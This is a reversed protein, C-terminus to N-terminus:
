LGALIGKSKEEFVKEGTVDAFAGLASLTAFEESGDDGFKLTVNDATVGKVTVSNEGDTYTLSVADWNASSGSAFWLTVTGDPLQEVTDVGWNDCFAFIDNGGGGHMLDSGVGGALVDNGSAGVLRDNGADGFLFNDGKNAWITDNGDGGRVTLGDGIYEFRQSTLDVVDNGAGARIEDIRAIRSQQEAVTGPLATYIDDVFLADGNADDTMLLVNADTSGEFIDALKNKGSLSVSENTGAWDGISGVHKAAYNAGWTGAANAFFVDANGDADSSVLQPTVAVTDAAINEGTVWEDSESARVRWQYTGQPLCFSSVGNSETHLRVLHEFNDTSYEVVYGTAGTVADWALGSQTGTLNEPAVGSIRVSKVESWGSLNGVNDVAQAKFYYTTGPTGNIALEAYTSYGYTMFNEGNTSYMINYGAIGSDADEGALTLTITSNAAAVTFGTVAPDVSDITNLTTPTDIPDNFDFYIKATNTLETGHALDQKANVTYNIYGEGAGIADNVPLMGNVLDQLMFGTEPDIAMFEAVLQTTGTEEDTVLNIAVTATVTYDYIHLTVTDNFCDRGDGVTFFNGAICFDRLEFTDLDFKSGDLTDFVRVWQAPATAFEPDNEFEVKYSLKSGAAIYGAEGVGETVTKDNPDASGSIPTKGGIPKGYQNEGGGNGGDDNGSVTIRKESRIDKSNWGEVVLTISQGLRLMDQYKQPLKISGSLKHENVKPYLGTLKEYPSAIYISGQEWYDDGDLLSYTITKGDCSLTLESPIDVPLPVSVTTTILFAGQGNGIQVWSGTQSYDGDNDLVRLGYTVTTGEKQWVDDFVEGTSEGIASWTNDENQRYWFYKTISGVIDQIGGNDQSGEASLVVKGYKGGSKTITTESKLPQSSITNSINATPAQNVTFKYRDFNGDTSKRYGVNTWTHTAYNGKTYFYKEKQQKIFSDGSLGLLYEKLREPNSFNNVKYVSDYNLVYSVWGACDRGETGPTITWLDWDYNPLNLSRGYHYIMIARKFSLELEDTAYISIVSAGYQKNYKELQSVTKQDNKYDPHSSLVSGNSNIAAHSWHGRSIWIDTANGSIDVVCPSNNGCYAYLNEGGDIGIPDPSLWRGTESDYNRARVFYTGSDNKMLGYGGVFTFDNAIGETSNLVNGWPDYSYTSVATGAAGSVSVTTGLADGNYYYTNGDADKFGALLDCQYYTRNWVGNVYEALVNGYQDVTWTTTVGNTTSSVRNGMADYGYEWTQGTSKLTESAVRNDATWTYTRKEDELLNGNADYVYTFGDASVIQNLSNYVYTTTVGNETSSLRNGMADYTYALEQTVTETKDTFVAGVLQDRVDYTYTWTGERTAMATRLGARDYTYRNFSELVGAATYNEIATVEGYEDYAYTTYAGNGKAAKVLNGAEDYDYDIVLNGAEDTLRDYLDDDTYTYNLAHGLEDAYGALLGDVTYTYNVARGDAFTMSTLNEGADYTFAIDNMQSVYGDANYTYSITKGDSYTVSTLYGEANVTYEATQGARGQWRTLNGDADYTYSESTGDAYLTTVLASDDNYTYVISNGNADTFKTLAGNEDYEYLSTGGAPDTISAYNGNADYTYSTTKGNVTVSSQRGAEDYTYAYVNGREDTYGLLQEGDESYTYSATKGGSTISAVNGHADYTYSTVSGDAATVSTMNGDADYVYKSGDPATETAKNGAADYTYSTTGDADTLSLLRGDADYLYSTTEGNQTSAYFVRNGAADYGVTYSDTTTDFQPLVNGEMDKKFYKVGDIVFYESPDDVDILYGGDDTVTYTTTVGDKLYKYSVLSGEADYASLYYESVEEDKDLANGEADRKYYTIGDIVYHDPVTKYTANFTLAGFDTNGSGRVGFREGFFTLTDGTTGGDSTTGSVFGGNANYRYSYVIGSVNDVARAVNGDAGFFLTMSDGNSSTLTVEGGDGYALEISGSSKTLKTVRGSADYAFSRTSGDASVAKTLAHEHTDYYEYSAIVGSLSDTVEVLDGDEYTYSVTRGSKDTISTVFGTASDRSFALYEGSSTNTLRVIRGDADYSCSVRENDLATVSLLKGAKDFQKVTGSALTLRYGISNKVLKSGDEVANQFGNSYNPQYLAKSGGEIYTVDGNASIELKVDWDCCWGYGFSGATDRSAIDGSYSRRIAMDLSNGEKLIDRTSVLEGFPQLAGTKQMVEFCLLDSTNQVSVDGISNLYKLNSIVMDYYGGWTNGFDESFAVGLAQAASASLGSKGFVNAWNLRTTDDSSLTAVNWNIHSNGFDWDDSRWGLYTIPVTVSEGPLLEGVNEGSVFFSLSDSYGNPTTSVWFATSVSSSDLTLEAGLTEPKDEHWQTPTFFILPSDIAATGTNAINLYLTSVAARGVTAPPNFTYELEGTGTGAITVTASAFVTDTDSLKLRYEGESLTGAVITASLRTGSDRTVSLSYERGTGDVLAAATNETFRVGTITLTIDQTNDQTSQTFKEIELPAVDATVTYDLAGPVSKAYVMVYIDRAVATDSLTLSGDTVRQLKADYKERTPSFGYGIYLEMNAADALTDLAVTMSEGAAQTFKYVAFDGSANVHGDAAIGASLTPIAVSVAVAKLNQAAAAGVIGSDEDNNIDSRVLLYYNGEKVGSVAFQAQASLTEGALLGDAYTYTALLKDSVDWKRDTSLYVGDTWSGLLATGSENATNWAILTKAGPTLTPSVEVDGITLDIETLNVFGTYSDGSEGNVDNGNQNLKNGSYDTINESIRVSYNGTATQATVSFEAISDTVMRVSAPAIGTGDPAILRVNELLSSPDVSKNFYVQFATLTGAVDGAPVTKLVMPGSVSANFRIQDGVAADLESFRLSSLKNGDSDTISSSFVLTYIGEATLDNLTVVIRNGNVQVDKVAHLKGANDRLMVSDASVTAANVIGTFTAEITKGGSRLHNKVLDTSEIAFVVTSPNVTLVDGIIVKDKDAGLMARIADIDATGWYNGSLDVDVADGFVFKAHSFDNGSIGCNRSWRSLDLTFDGSLGSITAASGVVITGAIVADKVEGYVVGNVVKELTLAGDDANVIGAFVAGREIVVNRLETTAAAELYGGSAIRIDSASAGDAVYLYGGSALTAGSLLAGSNIRLEGGFGINADYYSFGANAAVADGENFSRNHIEVEAGIMASITGSGYQTVVAKGGSNVTLLSGSNLTINKVEARNAVAASGGYNLLLGDVSADSNVNLSGSNITMGVIRGSSGVYVIGGNLVINEAVGSSFVYMSGNTINVGSLHNNQELMRGGSALYCGAYQDAYFVVAASHASVIGEGPTWHVDIASAGSSVYLYGGSSVTVGDICGGQAVTMSGGNHVVANLSSQGSGVSQYYGSFINFGYIRNGASSVFASGGMRGSVVAGLDLMLSVGDEFDVANVTANKGVVVAGGSHVIGGSMRASTGSLLIRGGSFVESDDLRASYGATLLGGDKIVTHVASDYSDVYLNGGSYLVFNTATGGNISFDGFENRGSAITVSSVDMGMWPDYSYQCYDVTTASIVGGVEQRIDFASGGSRLDMVAGASLVVGSVYQLPTVIMLGGSEVAVDIASGLNGEIYDYYDARGSMVGGSHIRVSSALGRSIQLSGGFLEANVLSASNGLTLAGGHIQAKEIRIGSTDWTGAYTYGGSVVLNSVTGLYISLGGSLVTASDFKACNSVICSGGSIVTGTASGGAYVSQVGGSAIITREANYGSSVIQIYGSPVAFDRTTTGTRSSYYEGASTGTVQGNFDIQIKAGGEIVADAVMANAVIMEAGSKLSVHQADGGSSVYIHGGSRVATRCVTGGDKVTQIAGNDVTTDCASAGSYVTQTGGQYFIFNYAINGSQHFDGLANKGSVITSNGSGSLVTMINGGVDQQISRVSAGVAVQVNGRSAVNIQELIAGSSAYLTGSVTVQTAKAGHYVTLYASDAIYVNDASGRGNVFASATDLTVYSVRGGASVYLRSWKNLRLNTASGGSYVEIYSYRDASVDNLMGSDHVKMGYGSQMIIGSMQLSSSVLRGYTGSGYYVGTPTNKWQVDDPSEFYVSGTFPTYDVDRATAGSSVYLYGGSQVAIEEAYGGSSVYMSGGQISVKVSSGGANVYANGDVIATNSAFGNDGITQNAFLSSIITDVASGGSGISQFTSNYDYYYYDWYGTLITSSVVGHVIQSGASIITGNAMGGNYVTQTGGNIVADNAVGGSYIYTNGYDTVVSNAVGGNFVYMSGYYLHGTGGSLTMASSLLKNNSGYYVGEYNSAFTVTAGGDLYVSGVCPTWNINSASAGSSIYLVGASNVTLGTASAGSFVYLTNGSEISFNSLTADKIEFSSGAYKGQIYTDPAVTLSLLAGASASIGVATGGSSVCLRGQNNVSVGSLVGGNSVYMSGYTKITANSAVGGSHVAMYGYRELSINKALGGSSIYLAGYSDITYGSIIANSAKFATGAYTGQIYTDPAIDFRLRAGSSAIINTATGGSSVYLYGNGGVTTSKATGGSYVYLYSWSNVVTASAIGGSSVYMSDNTLTVGSSVQGSSVNM